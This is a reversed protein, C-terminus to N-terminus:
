ESKQNDKSNLDKSGASVGSRGASVAPLAEKRTAPLYAFTESYFVTQNGGQSKARYLSQDARDFLTKFSDGDQPFRAAGISVTVHNMSELRTVIAKQLIRIRDKLINPSRSDPIFVTFEDGGFRGCITDEDSITDIIDAVRCLIRDGYLHGFQDNITKFHDIDLILFAGCRSLDQTQSAFLSGALETFGSRNLMGTLQDTNAKERLRLEMLKSSHIDEVKGVIRYVEGSEDEIGISTCRHWRSLGGFLRGEYEFAQTGGNELIDSFYRRYLLQEPSLPKDRKDEAIMFNEAIRDSRNGAVGVSCTFRDTQADYDFTDVDTNDVILRFCEERWKSRREREVQESVDTITAYAFMEKTDANIVRKAGARIWVISGDPKRYRTRQEIPRGAEFDDKVLASMPPIQLPEKWIDESTMQYFEDETIGLIECGRRSMYVAKLSPKIRFIGIGDPMSDVINSLDRQASAAREQARIRDDVDLLTGIMRVPTGDDDFVQIAAMQTWRYSGDTMKLRITVETHEDQASGRSFAEMIPADDPYIGSDGGRNNLIDENSFTSMMYNQYNPSSFFTGEIFEWDLVTFGIQEVVIRYRDQDKKQRYREEIEATVDTFTSLVLPQNLTTPYPYIQLSGAATHIRSGSGYFRREFHVLEEGSKLKRIDDVLGPQEDEPICDLFAPAAPQMIGKEDLGLMTRFHRNMFRFQPNDELTYIAIGCPLNDYLQSLEQMSLIKGM